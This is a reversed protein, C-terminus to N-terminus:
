LTKFYESYLPKFNNKKFLSQAQNNFTYIRAKLWKIGKQKALVEVQTILLNGVGKGRYEEKVYIDDIYIITTQNFFKQIEEINVKCLGAFEGNEEAIFLYSKNSGNFCNEFYGKLDSQEIIERNVFDPEKDVHMLWMEKLYKGYKNADEQTGYRINM